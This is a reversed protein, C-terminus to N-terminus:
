PIMNPYLLFMETKTLLAPDHSMVKNCIEHSFYSFFVCIVNGMAIKKREAYVINHFSEPFGSIDCYMYPLAPFRLQLHKVKSGESPTAYSVTM